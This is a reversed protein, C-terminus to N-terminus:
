ILNLDAQRYVIDHFLNPGKKTKHQDGCRQGRRRNRRRFGRVQTAPQALGHHDQRGVLITIVATVAATVTLAAIVVAPVIVPLAIIALIVIALGPIARRIRLAEIASIAPLKLITIIADIAGHRHGPPAPPHKVGARL